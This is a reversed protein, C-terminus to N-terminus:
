PYCSCFIWCHWGASHCLRLYFDVAVDRKWTRVRFRARLIRAFGNTQNKMMPELLFDSLTGGIIPSIPNSLWAILRRASFVRGQLDPAVKAQWIAQNSGNVLPSFLGSLLVAPVWIPLSHGLSFIINGLVATAIWGFLVGHTRKKFGGWASMAIGGVVMGISAASEVSGLIITNQSTRALLMPALVTMGIGAFLNGFFFVM